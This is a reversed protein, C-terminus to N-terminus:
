CLFVGILPGAQGWGLQQKASTDLIQEWYSSFVVFRSLGSDYASLLTFLSKSM